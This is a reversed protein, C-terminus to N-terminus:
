FTNKIRQAAKQPTRGGTMLRYIGPFYRSMLFAASFVLILAIPLNLYFSHPTSIIHRTLYRFYSLPVLHFLYVFFTFGSFYILRRNKNMLSSIQIICIVGLAIASKYIALSLSTYNDTYWVDLDPDLWIRAAILTVWLLAPRYKAPQGSFLTEGLTKKKRLLMGLWFFFLTENHLLHWEAVIPFPQADFFWLFFSGVGFLHFVANGFSALLPSVLTLVIIDRLYWFQVSLPHAIMGSVISYASIEPKQSGFLKQAGTAFVFILTSAILYPVLLTHGKENLLTKCGDKRRIRIFIFYGSLLAFFPVASKAIGNVLFQQFLYNWGYGSSIDISVLTNYHVSVVLLTSFLNGAMLTSSIEPSVSASQEGSTGM